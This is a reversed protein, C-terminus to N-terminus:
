RRSLLYCGYLLAVVFITCILFLMYTAKRGRERRFQGLAPGYIKYPDKKKAM